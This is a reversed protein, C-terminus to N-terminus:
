DLYLFENSSLLLRAYSALARRGRELPPVGARAFAAEAQRLYTLGEAREEATPARTFALAYAHGVRAADTRAAMGIRVGFRDALLHVQGDNMLTLAQLATTSRAREATSVNADVGDWVEFFPDKRMRQQFLYV